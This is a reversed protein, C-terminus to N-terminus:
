FPGAAHEALSRRRQPMLWVKAREKGVVRTRVGHRKVVYAAAENVERRNPKDIGVAIVIETARYHASWHEAPLSWDFHRDILEAIPSIPEHESNTANLADLEEASLHWTEGSSYLAHAEAWVQQMDIRAPEGLAVAHVTWWRTNGTADRLFREDNVSAFLITRRAYRSETRAYPRRIEDHSRSIFSKLAAIDTRRFTADVEGLEVIWKSIVQKVSDKNAPDLVVGDAILQLEAPALQRAWRTKGLNQKSVFTLVGRAVVGDPEFAAAVGSILWRRMLVEKLVRGDAMRTPQAEQVTDFFAQLRRQGDWPRSTIWSAVPNYPNAEAVQCLNTEFSATAMGARHMCDMVEGAAVEKANDVTTQLGPVLIELDKRIVNYRVTVGTRRCLEALNRATPLPRGRASTDPFPTFADFASLNGPVQYRASGSSPADDQAVDDGAAPPVPPLLQTRVADLGERLHLDNFDTPRDDDGHLAAFEPWAVRADIDAATQTALTVGPNDLPQRTWQDNDACLVFSADPMAGRWAQGVPGLNGADWAVVACWGTAQHISEATAYGEAIAIPQGPVPKGIVHFCGQKRGGSLFDKDRGLAPDMRPFIAQLSVIRGASNMVPVLLANDIHRFVLGDSNRVPWPAVRLGHAHIGKRVLYPHHADAPIARNWLVNAVKAAADERERQDRERASRAAEQRQRIARQEAASLTTPSKACWAHRIGTRWSGFEGAPVNDGFLVAWGNRTGRRDGEVHFRVLTGDANLADRGRADPVIGHAHMAQLFAPVIDQTPHPTHM